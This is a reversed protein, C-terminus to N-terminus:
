AGGVDAVAARACAPAVAQAFSIIKSFIAGDLELGLPRELIDDRVDGHRVHYSSANKKICAHRQPHGRRM